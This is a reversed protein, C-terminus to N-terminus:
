EGPVEEGQSINGKGFHKLREESGDGTFQEVLAPLILRMTQVVVLLVACFLLGGAIWVVEQATM